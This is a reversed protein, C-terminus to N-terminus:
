ASEEYSLREARTAHRASIIRIRDHRVTFSIYLLHGEDSIGILISRDEDLTSHADDSIDQGLPDYFVTSAEEFSVGHM